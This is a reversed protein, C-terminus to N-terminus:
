QRLIKSSKKSRQMIWVKRFDKFRLRLESTYLTWWDCSFSFIQNPNFTDIIEYDRGDIEQLPAFNRDARECGGFGLYDRKCKRPCFQSDLVSTNKMLIPVELIYLEKDTALIALRAM